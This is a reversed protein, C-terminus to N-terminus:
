SQLLPWRSAIYKEAADRVIWALSVKKERAMMELTEYVEAPFTITARVSAGSQVIGARLEADRRKM